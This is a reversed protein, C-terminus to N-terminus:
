LGVKHLLHNLKGRWGLNYGHRSATGRGEHRIYHEVPFDILGFGREAAARMNQLCPAGHREFPPLAAYVERRLMMAIPRVYPIADPARPVDFGRKDMFTLKGAAYATPSASLADRMKELFEGALVECDSDLFFIFPTLVTRAALDMAPGHHINENNWLVTMASEGRELRELLSRSGDRSGNDIVLLPVAPYWERFSRIARETLGPTRYNVIVATCADM